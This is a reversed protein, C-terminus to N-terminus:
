FFKSKKKKEAFQMALRPATLAMEQVAVLSQAYQLPRGTAKIALDDCCHERETKIQSTLWWM